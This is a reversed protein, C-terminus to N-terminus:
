HPSEGLFVVGSWSKSNEREVDLRIQEKTTPNEHILLSDSHNLMELNFEANMSGDSNEYIMIENENLLVKKEIENANVTINSVTLALLFIFLRKILM